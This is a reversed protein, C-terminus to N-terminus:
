LAVCATNRAPYITPINWGANFSTIPTDGMAHPRSQCMAWASKACSPGIVLKDQWGDLLVPIKLKNECEKSTRLAYDCKVLKVPFEQRM